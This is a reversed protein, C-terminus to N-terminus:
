FDDFKIKDRKTRFSIDNFIKELSMMFFMSNIVNVEIIKIMLIAFNNVDVGDKFYSFYEKAKLMELGDFFQLLDLERM